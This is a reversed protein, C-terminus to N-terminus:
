QYRKLAKINHIRIRRGKVDIIGQQAMESMLRSLTEPKISLRSAIVHKPTILHVVHGNRANSPVLSTLFQAVRRNAKDQTLSVMEAIRDNLNLSLNRLYNGCFESNGKVLKLFLQRPIGYLGSDQIAQAAVPYIKEPMFMVHDGITQGAMALELVNETGDLATVCLKVQGTEIVFVQEASEHQQFLFDGPALDIRNLQVVLRQLESETLVSFLPHHKLIRHAVERQTDTLRNGQQLNFSHDDSCQPFNM